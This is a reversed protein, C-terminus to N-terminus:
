NGPGLNRLRERANLDALLAQNEAREGRLEDLEAQVQSREATSSCTTLRATQDIIGMDLRVLENLLHTRHNVDMGGIKSRM